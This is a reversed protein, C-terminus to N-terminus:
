VFFGKTKKNFTSKGFGVETKELELFFEINAEDRWFYDNCAGPEIVKEVLLNSGRIVWAEGKKLKYSKDEERFESVGFPVNISELYDLVYKQEGKLINQFHMGEQVVYSSQTSIHVVKPTRDFLYGSKDKYPVFIYGFASSKKWTTSDTSWWPYRIILDVATLAFGHTKVRPTGKDDCICAFVPDGMSQIFKEKTIDQGLGGIGIYEYSDMYKKLWKIDEGFHFVPLPELGCSEMYKQVEWSKEANFIIDLSVYVNCLHKNAHLFEIYANLYDKFTKSNFYEYNADLRSMEGKIHAVGAFEKNFISHAGSDMFLDIENM